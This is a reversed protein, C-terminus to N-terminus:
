YGVPWRWVVSVGYHQQMACGHMIWGGSPGLAASGPEVRQWRIDSIGDAKGVQPQDPGPMWVALDCSPWHSADGELVLAEASQTLRLVHGPAMRLLPRQLFHRAVGEVQTPVNAPCAAQWVNGASPGPYVHPDGCAQKWVWLASGTLSADEAETQRQRLPRQQIADGFFGWEGIWLAADMQRAASRALQMGREISVLNFGLGQDSTISENYLHPSFVLDPDHLMGSPPLNDVGFGSWFISPEVIVPHAFGGPVDHEAARISAIARAHYNTLLLTSSLPPTEAFNPENLLDYGAVAVNTAFRRALAQWAGLLASQIGDRDMYFSQFARSVNPALDRGTFQCAPADDTLTAWRPAGDWGTMPDAGPRCQTGPPANVSAGWADQHLDIVVAIQQEAAWDVAQAINDLYAGDVKGRVPELRSWSLTLRVANIGLAAMDVFDQRTLPQVADLRRDAQYYEGLQNVNVGRLVVQAGNLNALVAAGNTHEVHLAACHATCRPIPVLAIPTGIPGTSRITGVAFVCFVGLTALALRLAIRRTLGSQMARTVFRNTRTLVLLALVNCAALVVGFTLMDISCLVLQVLWWQDGANGALGGSLGLQLAQVAFLALASLMGAVAGGVVMASLATVRARRLISRLLITNVTVLALLALLGNLVGAQPVPAIMRLGAPYAYGVPGHSWWNAGLWPSVLVLFILSVCAATMVVVQMGNGSRDAPVAPASRLEHRVFWAPISVLLGLKAMKLTAYGSSWLLFSLSQAIPLVYTHRDLSLLLVLAANVFWALSTALAAGSWVQVVTWGRSAGAGLASRAILYQLGLALPCFVLYPALWWFQPVPTGGIWPVVAFLGGPDAAAMGALLAAMILASALAARHPFRSVSSVSPQSAASM